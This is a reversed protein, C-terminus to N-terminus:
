RTIFLILFFIIILIKKSLRKSPKMNDFKLNSNLENIFINKGYWFTDYVIKSSSHYLQHHKEEENEIGKPFYITDFLCKIYKTSLCNKFCWVKKSKISLAISM